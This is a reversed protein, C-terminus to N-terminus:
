VTLKCRIIHYYAQIIFRKETTEAAQYVVADATSPRVSQSPQDLPTDRQLLEPPHQPAREPRASGPSHREPPARTPTPACARAPSIWPLTERSSSQHTNPRVSQGPQDLPTDRQLLEPPHQPACEPRASGPSAQIIFRKETTEAAQYVVADATSPRVSQSPQDLPTDRQLLEPPHQPAREPRASGPSHREPPARTPTPACARAPSIWPLTERSSSQHTNPHVSQGPLDLPIDREFVEATRSHYQLRYQRSYGAM